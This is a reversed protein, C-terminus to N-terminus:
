RLEEIVRGAIDPWEWISKERDLFYDDLLGGTAATRAQTSTTSRTQRAPEMGLARQASELNISLGHLESAALVQTFLGGLERVSTVEQEALLAVLSQTPEAGADTLWRTVLRERLVRDPAQMAVVLGGEFRSRLRDAVRVLERPLRDAALVIQGGRAYLHNFIHFLEEQTREKGSLSQVDDLILVDAARYRARWREVSGDQMAGVLDDAFVSASLCAVTREPWAHRLANGLAHVFHSKGVGSAGHVFLPNYRTGPHEVLADFARMALLNASGSELLDRTLTPVPAPLPLATALAHDLLAQAEAITEPNRFAVHGRLSPDLGIAQSEIARLHEVAATFTSLLGNVDPQVPYSM